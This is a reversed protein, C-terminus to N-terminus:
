SLLNDRFGFSGPPKGHYTARNKKCISIQESRLGTKSM